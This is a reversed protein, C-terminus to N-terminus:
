IINFEYEEKHFADKLYQINLSEIDGTYVKDLPFILADETIYEDVLDKAERLSLSFNEKVLKILLVKARTDGTICVNEAAQKVEEEGNILVILFSNIAAENSFTGLAKALKEETIQNREFLSNLVYRQLTNM